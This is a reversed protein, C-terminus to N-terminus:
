LDTEMSLRAGFSFGGLNLYDDTGEYEVEESYYADLYLGFRDFSDDERFGAFGFFLSAGAVPKLYDVKEFFTRSKTWTPKLWLAGCKVSLAVTEGISLFKPCINLVALGGECNHLTDSLLASAEIGMIGHFRLSMGFSILTTYDEHLSDTTCFSVGGHFGFMLKGYGDDPEYWYPDSEPEPYTYPDPETVVPPPPPIVSDIELAPLYIRTSKGAFINLSDVVKDNCYVRYLGVPIDKLTTDKEFARFREASCDANVFSYIDCDHKGEEILVIANGTAIAKRYDLDKLPMRASVSNLLEKGDGDELRFSPAYRLGFEAKEDGTLCRCTISLASAYDRCAECQSSDHPVLIIEALNSLCSHEYLFSELIPQDYKKFDKGFNYCLLLRHKKYDIDQTYGASALSGILVITVFVILTRKMM